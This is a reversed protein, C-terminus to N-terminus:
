GKAGGGFSDHSRGVAAPRNSGGRRRRGIVELGGKGGEGFWRIPFPKLIDLTRFIVLGLVTHEWTPVTFLAAAPNRKVRVSVRSPKGHKGINTLIEQMIRYIVTQTPLPFEQDLNDLKIQWTINKHHKAFEDLMQRLAGTLGLDELNGPSLDFYLRRVNDLVGDIFPQLTEIDRALKGQEPALGRELARLHLKITLLAHGVEDHLETALRKREGEHATLLQSSLYRLREKSKKLAAETHLRDTIEDRLQAVMLQLEATRDKVRQELEDHAAKLAKEVRKHATIDTLAVVAGM